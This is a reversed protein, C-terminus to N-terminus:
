TTYKVATSPLGAESLAEEISLQQAVWAAFLKVVEIDTETFPHRAEPATFNLTGFTRGDVILPVGIYTELLFMNYCPHTALESQSAQHYAVPGDSLLTQSCYTDGLDFTTGPEVPAEKSYCYIVTYTEEQVCSVIASM